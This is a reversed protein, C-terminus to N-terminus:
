TQRDLEFNDRDKRLPALLDPGDNRVNGIRKDVQWLKLLDESSAHLLISPDGPQEGLWVPWDAAELIVPMREHLESMRANAATTVIAFTRLIDGEPSRWGEWIGAFALPSDDSRAIAYPTKGSPGAQWEYFAAAPVICRRKVYARAFMGTTAVTEARANIPRRAEKLTKTSAPVFGWALADLHREGTVPHRRVVPADMTPAMNWTPKLNPLPNKTGFLRAIFEPPLFSAYRGCM